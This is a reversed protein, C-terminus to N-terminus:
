VDAQASRSALSLHTLISMWKFPGCRSVCWPRYRQSQPRRERRRLRHQEAVHRVRRQAPVVRGLGRHHAARRAGRPPRQPHRRHPIRRCVHSSPTRPRLGPGPSLHHNPHFSPQAQARPAPPTKLCASAPVPMTSWQTELPSAASPPLRSGRQDLLHHGFKTMGRRTVRM